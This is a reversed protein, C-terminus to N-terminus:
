KRKRSKYIALSAVCIAPICVVIGYALSAGLNGVYAIPKGTILLLLFLAMAAFAGMITQRSGARM